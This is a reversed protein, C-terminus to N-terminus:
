AVLSLQKSALLTAALGSLGKHHSFKMPAHLETFLTDAIFVGAGSGSGFEALPRHSTAHLKRARAVSASTLQNNSSYVGARIGQQQRKASLQLVKPQNTQQNGLSEIFSLGLATLAAKIASQHGMVPGYKGGIDLRVECGHLIAFGQLTNATDYLVSSLSVPELELHSAQQLRLSLLYGDILKLAADSALAITRRSTERDSAEEQYQMLEAAYAIQVFPMKFQEALNRSL